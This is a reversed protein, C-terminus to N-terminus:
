LNAVQQVDAYNTGSENSATNVGLFTDTGNTFTNSNLNSAVNYTMPQNAMSGTGGNADFTIEYNWKAYLTADGINTVSQGDTYDTGSADPMTNWGGFTYGTKTFTNTNLVTPVTNFIKQDNMTGTGDNNNFSVTYIGCISMSNSLSDQSTLYALIPNTNSLMSIAAIIICVALLLVRKSKVIVTRNLLTKKNKQKFHKGTMNSAM